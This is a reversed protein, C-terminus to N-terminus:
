IFTETKGGLPPGVLHGIGQALLILGYAVTFHEIPILKMLIAPSYSYSSAFSFGFVASNISLLWFNHIFFPYAAVSAGCLILFFSFTNMINMWPQDGSWGLVVQLFCNTTQIVPQPALHITKSSLIRDKSNHLSMVLCSLAM